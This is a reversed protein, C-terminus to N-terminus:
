RGGGRDGALGVRVGQARGPFPDPDDEGVIGDEEALGQRGSEGGRAELDDALGVIDGAQQREDLALPRVEGDDVDPHWRGIRCLTELGRAADPRIMRRDGDEDERL